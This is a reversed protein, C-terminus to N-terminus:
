KNVMLCLTLSLYFRCLLELLIKLVLTGSILFILKRFLFNYPNSRNALDYLDFGSNMTVLQKLSFSGKIGLINNKHTYYREFATKLKRTGYYKFLVDITSSITDDIIDRLFYFTIFIAFLVILIHSFFTTHQTISYLIIINIIFNFLFKIFNGDRSFYRVIPFLTRDCVSYAIFELIKFITSIHSTRLAKVIPNDYFRSEKPFDFVEGIKRLTDVFSNKPEEGRKNTRM